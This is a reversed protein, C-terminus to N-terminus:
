VGKECPRKHPISRGEQSCVQVAVHDDGNWPTPDCIRSRRSNIGICDTHEIVKRTAWKGASYLTSVVQETILDGGQATLGAVLGFFSALNTKQLGDEGFTAYRLDHVNRVVDGLHEVLRAEAKVNGDILKDHLGQAMRYTAMQGGRPDAVITQWTNLIRNNLLAQTVSPDTNSLNKKLAQVKDYQNRLSNLTLLDAAVARLGAALEKHAIHKAARQREPRVDSQEYMRVLDYFSSTPKTVQNDTWTAM